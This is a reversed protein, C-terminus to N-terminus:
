FFNLREKEMFIAMKGTTTGVVRGSERAEVHYIYIGSAVPLGRATQLNWEAISSPGAVKEITRVLDGALNFVRITCETPLNTFKIRRSFQNLEYISENRYPNPVVLVQKLDQDLRGEEFTVGRTEIVFRDTPTNPKTTSFQIVTGTAPLISGESAVILRAFLETTTPDTAIDGDAADAVFQEYTAITPDFRYAYVWDTAPFGSVLDPTDASFDFVGITGGNATLAPILRTEEGTIPDKEYLGFPVPGAVTGDFAWFGVNNPDNDWKMIIDDSSLNASDTGDRTLRGLAVAATGDGGGTSLRWEVTSNNSQWVDNGPGGHGDPAVPAGGATAIEDIMPNPRDNTKFGPLAGIVQWFIGEASLYVNDGAQNRQNVLVARGETTTLNWVPVTVETTDIVGGGHDVIVTDIVSTFTVEYTDGTIISPDVVTAIVQGDSTGTVHESEIVDGATGDEYRTGAPTGQPVVTIPLFSSELTRFGSVAAPGFSYATILYYYEKGNRLGGGNIFDEEMTIRRSVGSDSGFQVPRNVVVGAEPDFQDDFIIGIDDNVDFTAILAREASPNPAALQYVNYGEFLYGPEDYYVESTDGWTLSIMEDLSAAHVVPPPPASPLVFNNDFATQAFLDNFRMGTISTLRDRGQGVVVACVVEQVGPEGVEPVDDSDSDSWPEMNFPGASLMMRRDAPNSDLWGVRTVPDGAVQYRTIEGTVQDIVPDGNALLGQMYNYTDQASGPDTGNIYKNFSAMPLNRFGPILQGSVYATDGASPVIPGQFFDIGVAPPDSGYVNDRNTANYCYGLSITTDAGVLDDAAGGLDPDSWVSIFADELTNGGKNILLFKVFAVNELPGSLNFGFTTQQVEIGLPLTKGADNLHEPADLDHYVCWLTQDGILLPNGSSDVPAGDEVPWDAYDPNNQANDGRNIKYTRWHPNNTYTTDFSADEFVKGPVTEWSYENVFVRTGGNVKAGMWMGAAFIMGNESGKPYVLGSIGEVIDYAFSGHNTVFMDLANVDFRTVRDLDQPLPGMLEPPVARLSSVGLMSLALVGAAGVRSWPVRNM